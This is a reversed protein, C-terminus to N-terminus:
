VGGPYFALYLYPSTSSFGAKFHTTAKIHNLPLILKLILKWFLRIKWFLKIKRFLRIKWFLKIKRFLRIKWFLKM